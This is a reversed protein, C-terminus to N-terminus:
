LRAWGKEKGKGKEKETDQLDGGAVVSSVVVEVGQETALLVEECDEGAVGSAWQTVIFDIRSRAQQSSSASIDKSNAENTGESGGAFVIMPAHWTGVGYTVAMDATAVFAQVRTLDPPNRIMGNRHQVTRPLSPAVVILYRLSDKGPSSNQSLPIFTQTTYPHRELMKLPLTTTVDERPGQTKSGPTKDTTPHHLHHHLDSFPRAFCSFMSMAPKARSERERRRQGREEEHQGISVEEASPADVYSEGVVSIGPFKVATGQNALVPHGATPSLSQIQIQSISSPSLSSPPPLIATGFPSFAQPTLPAPHIFLPSSSLSSPLSLTPPTPPSPPM